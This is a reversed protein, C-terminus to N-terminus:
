SQYYARALEKQREKKTAITEEIREMVQRLEQDSQITYYGQSCSAVPINYEVRIEAVMDRVTTSKLGVRDGLAKSSIASQKGERNELLRALTRKAARVEHNASDANHAARSM